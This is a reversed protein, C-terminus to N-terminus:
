CKHRSGDIATGCRHVYDEVAKPVNFNIVAQVTPIDLGRSAVDAIILMFGSPLATTGTAVLIKVINSKFQALSSLRAQQSM